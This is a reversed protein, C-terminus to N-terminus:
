ENSRLSLLYAILDNLSQAPIVEAFNEPMISTQIQNQEEVEDARVTVEKAESNVLVVAGNKQSRILGSVVQGDALTIITTRFAQDVNRYPLLLDEIVREAGRTGIGDLQPGM